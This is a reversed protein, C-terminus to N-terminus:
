LKVHICPYDHYFLHENLQIHFTCMQNTVTLCICVDIMVDIVTELAVVLRSLLREHVLLFKVYISFQAIILHLFLVSYIPALM